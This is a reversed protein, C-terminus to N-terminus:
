GWRRHPKREKAVTGDFAERLCEAATEWVDYTRSLRNYKAVQTRRDDDSVGLTRLEEDLFYGLAVLEKTAPAPKWNEPRGVAWPAFLRDIDDLVRAKVSEATYGWLTM